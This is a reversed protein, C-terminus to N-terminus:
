GLAKRLMALSVRAADEDFADPELSVYGDYGDEALMAGIAQYEALDEETPYGRKLLGEATSIHVHKVLDRCLRYSEALDEDNMKAHYFDLVMGSNDIGCARTWQAAEATSTLLNCMHPQLAEILVNMGLEKAVDATIKVFQAFEEEAKARDYGEPVRRAGAMGIGLAPSGLIAARGGTRRGYALVKEPDFRPGVAAPEGFSYVNIGVLPLGVEEHIRRHAEFEEETYAGLKGGAFEYADYGLAKVKPLDRVDNICLSIKM